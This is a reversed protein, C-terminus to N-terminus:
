GSLVAVAGTATPVGRWSQVVARRADRVQLRGAEGRLQLVAHLVRSLGTAEALHGIGLSGGSPNVPLTGSVETAGSEVLRSAEGQKCLHLAEIHQLEKFSYSDDVEAFDFSRSPNKVEALKYAERAALEAYVARSLDRDELWPSDTCWGVGDLWVVSHPLKKARPESALVLVIAADAYPSIDLAGLPYCIPESQLVDEVDIHIGYSARPNLLANRKNKCVVEACHTKTARSEILYRNMELAAIFHPSLGLHRVYSPDLALSAVEDKNLVDSLKSHSEVVVIDFLGTAIQMYATALGIIGDATVTCLPRLVAGIQDPMYEDSISNGEWFDETCCVFSRVEKRPDIGADSYARTAAEFMLEKYSLDATIPAFGAYGVGIIGVRIAM